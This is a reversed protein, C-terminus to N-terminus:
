HVLVTQEHGSGVMKLASPFASHFGLVFPIKPGACNMSLPNAETFQKGSQKIYQVTSVSNLLFPLGSEKGLPSVRM